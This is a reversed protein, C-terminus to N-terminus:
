VAEVRFFVPLRNLQFFGGRGKLAELGVKRLFTSKGAGPGGVVTLYQKAKAVELGNLRQNSERYFRNEGRFVKELADPTMYDEIADRDLLKVSTYIDELPIPERMRLVKFHGHQKRYKRAYAERVTEIAENHGSVKQESQSISQGEEDVVKKWNLSLAECIKHFYERSVPKGNFFNSIVSRPIGLEVSLATKSGFRLLARDALNLGEPSATLSRKTNRAM